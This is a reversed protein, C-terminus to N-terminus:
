EAKPLFPLRPRQHALTLGARRGRARSEAIGTASGRCHFSAIVVAADQNADLPDCVRRSILRADFASAASHGALHPVKWRLV